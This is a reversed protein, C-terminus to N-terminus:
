DQKIIPLTKIWQPANGGAGVPQYILRKRAPVRDPWCVMGDSIFLVVDYKGILEELPKKFDSGGGGTLKRSPDWKEPADGDSIFIPVRMKSAANIAESVAINLEDGIMSGSVDVLIASKPTYAIVGPQIIGAGAGRRSPKSYSYDDRGSVIAGIRSRLIRTFDTKPKRKEWALEAWAPSYGKGKSESANINALINAAEQIINELKIDAQQVDGDSVDESTSDVDGQSDGGHGSKGTAKDQKNKPLKLLQEYITEASHQPTVVFKLEKKLMAVVDDYIAPVSKDNVKLQTEFQEAEIEIATRWLDADRGKGRQKFGHRRLIHECEHAIVLAKGADSLTKFSEYLMIPGTEPAVSAFAGRGADSWVIGWSSLVPIYWPHERYVIKFIDNFAPTLTPQKIEVQVTTGDPMNILAQSM